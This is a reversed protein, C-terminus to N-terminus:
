GHRGGMERQSHQGEGEPSARRALLCTNWGFHLGRLEDQGPKNAHRRRRWAKCGVRCDRQVRGASAPFGAELEQAAAWTLNHPQQWEGANCALM